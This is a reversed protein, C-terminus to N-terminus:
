PSPQRSQQQDQRSSRAISKPNGNEAPERGHQDLPLGRHRGVRDQNQAAVVGAANFTMILTNDNKDNNYM